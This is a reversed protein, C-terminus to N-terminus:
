FVCITGKESSYQSTSRYKKCLVVLPNNQSSPHKGLHNKPTQEILLKAFFCQCDRNHVVLTTWSIFIIINIDDKYSTNDNKVNTNNDDNNDGSHFINIMSSNVMELMMPISFFFFHIVDLQSPSLDAHRFTNLSHWYYKVGDVANQRATKFLSGNHCYGHDHRTFADM